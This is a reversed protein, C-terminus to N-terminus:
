CLTEALPGRPPPAVSCGLDPLSWACHPPRPAWEAGARQSTETAGKGGGRAWSLLLPPKGPPFWCARAGKGEAWFRAGGSVALYGLSQPVTWHPGCPRVKPAAVWRRSAWRCEWRPLARPEVVVWMRDGTGVMLWGLRSPPPEQFGHGGLAARPDIEIVSNWFVNLLLCLTVSFVFFAIKQSPLFPFLFVYM